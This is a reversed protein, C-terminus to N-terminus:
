HVEELRLIPGAVAGEEEITPDIFIRTVQQRRLGELAEDSVLEKAAIGIAVLEFASGIARGFTEAAERTTFFFTYPRRCYMDRGNSTLYWVTDPLRELFRQTLFDTDAVDARSWTPEGGDFPAARGRGSM